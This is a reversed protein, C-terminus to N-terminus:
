GGSGPRAVSGDLTELAGCFADLAERLIRCREELESATLNSGGDLSRVQTEVVRNFREAAERCGEGFQQCFREISVFVLKGHPYVGLLSESGWRLLYHKTPSRDLCLRPRQTQLRPLDDQIFRSVMAAGREGQVVAQELAADLSEERKWGLCYQAKNPLKSWEDKLVIVQLGQGTLDALPLDAQWCILVDFDKPPHNHKTPLINSAWCEFEVRLDAGTETDRFVGDPFSTRLVKVCWTPRLAPLMLLFLGVVEQEDSPQYLFGQFGPLIGTQSLPENPMGREEEQEHPM